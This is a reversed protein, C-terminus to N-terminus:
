RAARLPAYVIQARRDKAVRQGGGHDGRFTASCSLTRTTPLCAAPLAQHLRGPLQQGARRRVAMTHRVAPRPHRPWLQGRAGQRPAGNAGDFNRLLYVKERPASPSTEISGKFLRCRLASLASRARSSRKSRGTRTARSDGPRPKHVADSGQRKAQQLHHADPRFPRPLVGHATSDHKTYYCTSGQFCLPFNGCGNNKKDAQHQIEFWEVKRHWPMGGKHSKLM